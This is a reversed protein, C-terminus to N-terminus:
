QMPRQPEQEPAQKFINNIMTELQRLEEALRPQTDLTHILLRTSGFDVSLTGSLLSITNAFFIRAPGPPLGWRYEILALNLTSISSFARRSVDIGGLLSHGLFFAFFPM